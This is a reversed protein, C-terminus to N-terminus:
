LARSSPNVENRSKQLEQQLAQVQLRLAREAWTDRTEKEHWMGLLSLMLILGCFCRSTFPRRLMLLGSVGAIISFFVFCCGPGCAAVSMSAIVVTAM